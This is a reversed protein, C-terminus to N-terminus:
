MYLLDLHLNQCQVYAILSRTYLLGSKVLVVFFASIPLRFYQM